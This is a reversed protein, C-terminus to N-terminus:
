QCGQRVGSCSCVVWAAATDWAAAVVPRAAVGAVPTEILNDGTYNELYGGCSSLGRCYQFGPTRRAFSLREAREFEVM